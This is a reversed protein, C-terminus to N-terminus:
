GYEDSCQWHSTSVVKCQEVDQNHLGDCICFVAVREGTFATTAEVGKLSRRCSYAHVWRWTMGVLVGQKLDVCKTM